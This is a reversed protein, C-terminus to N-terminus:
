DPRHAASFIWDLCDTSAGGAGESVPRLDMAAGRPIPVGAVMGAINKVRYAASSGLVGQVPITRGLPM